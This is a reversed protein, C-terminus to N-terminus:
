GKRASFAEPKPRVFEVRIRCNREARHACALRIGEALEQQTLGKEKRLAKLDM